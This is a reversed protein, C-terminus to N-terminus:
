AKRYGNQEAWADVKGFFASVANANKLDPAQALLVEPKPGTRADPKRLLLLSKANARNKFLGEPLAIVGLIEAEDKLFTHLQTAFESEFLNAPAVFIGHGGKKLHRMSQEIFLHHAYSHGEEARLNYNMANEDDPYYGVPLDTIVFDAPDVMLPRLSDQHYLTVPQSLLDASAAALQILLDDIESGSAATRGDMFNMVTFLLNGTGIAPDFLTVYPKGGSLRDALYGAILGISDPTMQHNPQASEKMGKLMALQLGKRVEEKSAKEVEPSTKGDAWARVTELVAELYLTGENKSIREAHGDLFNFIRETNTEM